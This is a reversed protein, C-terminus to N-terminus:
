GADPAAVRRQQQEGFKKYMQCSRLFLETTDAVEGSIELVPRLIEDTFDKDAVIRIRFDMGQEKLLENAREVAPLLEERIAGSIKPSAFLIEASRTDFYGYLCMATRLSKAIIKDVTEKKSGYCLGNEHFAVDVAFVTPRGDQMRIGIADCEGQKIIQSRASKYFNEGFRDNASERIRDLEEGHRLTWKPSAKWNTQVIQCGKIHRLWSYILSEGIEIKM